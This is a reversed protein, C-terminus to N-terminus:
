HKAGVTFVYTARSVDYENVVAGPRKSVFASRVIWAGAKTLPLHVAGSADAKFTTYPAAVSGVATDAAPKADIGIGAVAKGSGMVKLHLTDGVHLHAPDNIPVYELLYGASLNFARTGGQGVQVITEAFSAYTFIVSDLSSITKDGEVRTAESAGGEARLFKLLGAPTSRMTGPSLGVAILYQGAVKPKQQLRLSAGEVSMETIKTTGSAGIIRADIVRAAPVATGDPFKTGQRASVQINADAAIAFLDPILWFDHAEATAVLSLTVVTATVAAFRRPYSRILHSIM